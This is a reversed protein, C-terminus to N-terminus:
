FYYKNKKKLLSCYVEEYLSIMKKESFKKCVEIQNKSFTIALDEDKYIELIKEEFESGRNLDFLFGNLGDEVLNPNGGVKSVVVPLGAAIAEILAISTGESFSTLVFLDMAKLVHPIDDRYGLLLVKEELGRRAIDAKICRGYDNAIPAVIVHKLHPIRDKLHEVMQIQLEINKVPYFRTVTGTVFSDLDLGLRRKAEDKSIKIVFPELNIGNYIVDVKDGRIFQRKIVDDRVEPSVAVVRDTFLSLTKTLAANKWSWNEIRGHKTVVVKISAKLGVIAGFFWSSSDHCHIVDIKWRDVLELLESITAGIRKKLKARNVHHLPVGAEAVLAAFRGAMNLVCVHPQVKTCPALVIQRIVSELGGVGFNNVMHMIRIQTQPM